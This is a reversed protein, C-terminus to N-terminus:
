STTSENFSNTPLVSVNFTTYSRKLPLNKAQYILHVISQLPLFDKRYFYM